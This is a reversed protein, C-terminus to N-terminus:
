INNELLNKCYDDHYLHAKVFTNNYSKIEEARKTINSTHHIMEASFGGMAFGGFIGVYISLEILSSKPNFVSSSLGYMCLAGPIAFVLAIPYTLKKIFKTTNFWVSELPTNVNTMDFMIKEIEKETSHKGTVTNVLKM